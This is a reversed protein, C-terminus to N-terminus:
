NKKFSVNIEQLKDPTEFGDSREPITSDDKLGGHPISIVIGVNGPRYQFFFFKKWSSDDKIIFIKLCKMNWPM